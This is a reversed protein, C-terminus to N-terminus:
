ASEHFKDLWFSCTSSLLLQPVLYTRELVARTELIATSGIVRKGDTFCLKGPFYGAQNPKAVLARCTARQM